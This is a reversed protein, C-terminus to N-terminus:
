VAESEAALVGAEDDLFESPLSLEQTTMETMALLRGQPSTAILGRSPVIQGVTMLPESTV